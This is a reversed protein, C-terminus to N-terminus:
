GSLTKLSYFVSMRYSLIMNKFDHGSWLTTYGYTKNEKHGSEENDSNFFFTPPCM